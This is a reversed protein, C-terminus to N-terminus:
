LHEGILFTSSVTSLSDTTSSFKPLMNRDLISARYLLTESILISFLVWCELSAEYFVILSWLGFFASLLFSTKGISSLNWHMSMSIGLIFSSLLSSSIYYHSPEVQLFINEVLKLSRKSPLRLMSDVLTYQLSFRRYQRIFNMFYFLNDWSSTLWM